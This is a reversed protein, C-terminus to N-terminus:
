SDADVGPTAGPKPGTRQVRRAWETSQAVVPPFHTHAEARM